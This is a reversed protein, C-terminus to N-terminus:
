DISRILSVQPQFGCFPPVTNNLWRLKHSKPMCSCPLATLCSEYDIKSVHKLWASSHSNSTAQFSKKFNKLLSKTNGSSMWQSLCQQHQVKVEAWLLFFEFTGYLFVVYNKLWLMINRVHMFKFCPVGLPFAGYFHLLFEHGTVAGHCICSSYIFPVAGQTAKFTNWSNLHPGSRTSQHSIRHIKMEPFNCRCFILKSLETLPILDLLVPTEWLLPCLEVRNMNEETLWLLFVRPIVKCLVPLM